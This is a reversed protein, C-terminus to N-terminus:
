PRRVARIDDLEANEGGLDRLSNGATGAAVMGTPNLIHWRYVLAVARESTVVDRIRARRMTPTGAEDDPVDPVSAARNPPDWPTQLIDRLRIRAMHWM